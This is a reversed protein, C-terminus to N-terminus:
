DRVPGLVDINPERVDIGFGLPDDSDGFRYMEDAIQRPRTGTQGREDGGLV